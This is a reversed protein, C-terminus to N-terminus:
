DATVELDKGPGWVALGVRMETTPVQVLEM